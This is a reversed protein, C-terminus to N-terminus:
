LEVMACGFYEAENIDHTILILLSDKAYENVTDMVIKKVGEDLGKFPEDLIIVTPNISLARAIAVRRKMGGSYDAVIKKSGVPLQLKQLLETANAGGAIEINKEATTWELLRDEQFVVGTIATNTDLKGSDPKVLGLIINLLTTKGSGSHGIVAYRGRDNFTYSFNDIVMKDGFTKSINNLRIM